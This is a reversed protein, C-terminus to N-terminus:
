VGKCKEECLAKIPLVLLLNQRIIEDLDLSNDKEIPYVFDEERLDVKKSKRTKPVPPSKSYEEAVKAELPARFKKLCRACELEAGTEFTGNLLVSPGTNTLHINVKVPQTLILGDEPFNVREEEVIDAENGVKRLLETLDIKM